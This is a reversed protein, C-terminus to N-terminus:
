KGLKRLGFIAAILFGIETVLFFYMIRNPSEDLVLGVVRGLVISALVVICGLIGLRIHEKVCLLLWVGLGVGLGGYTARVDIAASSTTFAGGTFLHTFYSPAFIFSLGFFVFLVSNILLFGKAFKM